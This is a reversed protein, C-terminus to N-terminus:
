NDGSRIEKVSPYFVVMLLLCAVSLWMPVLFLASYDMTGEVMAWEGVLATAFLSGVIIGVGVIVLNFFNQATARVDKSCYEDVVM